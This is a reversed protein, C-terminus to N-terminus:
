FIRLIRLERSSHSFFWEQLSSKTYVTFFLLTSHRKHLKSHVITASDFFFKNDDFMLSKKRITVGLYRLTLCLEIIQEVCTCVDVLKACYNATEMTSAQKELYWDLPTQKILHFIGTVSRGMVLDYMLNTRHLPGSKPPVKNRPSNSSLGLITAKDSDSLQDWVQHTHEPLQNWYELLSMQVATSSRRDHIHAQINDTAPVDVGYDDHVINDQDFNGELDHAYVQCQTNHKTRFQKDYATVVSLLLSVYEDVRTLEKGTRTTKELDAMNKVLHLEELPYVVNQLMFHKQINSFHDNIDAQRNYLKVQNKWHVVSTEASGQWKSNGLSSSTVCLLIASFDM